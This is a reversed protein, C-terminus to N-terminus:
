TLASNSWALPRASRSPCKHHQLLQSAVPADRHARVLSIVSRLENVLTAVHVHGRVYRLIRGPWTATRDIRACRPMSTVVDALLLSFPDLLAEAPQLVDRQQAFQLM